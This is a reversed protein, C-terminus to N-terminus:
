SLILAYSSDCKIIFINCKTILFVSANQFLNKNCKTILYNDSKKIIDMTSQLLTGYHVLHSIM